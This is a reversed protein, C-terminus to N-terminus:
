PRVLGTQKVRGERRDRRDRGTRSGLRSLAAMVLRTLAASVAGPYRDWVSLLGSMLNVVKSATGDMTVCARSDQGTAM